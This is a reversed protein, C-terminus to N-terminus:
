RRLSRYGPHHLPLSADTCVQVGTLSLSLAGNWHGTGSLRLDWRVLLVLDRRLFKGAPPKRWNTEVVNCLKREAM